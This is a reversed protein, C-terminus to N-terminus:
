LINEPRLKLNKPLHLFLLKLTYAKVASETKNEYTIYQSLEAITIKIKDLEEHNGTAAMFVEKKDMYESLSILKKEAEFFNDNKILEELEEAHVLLNSSIAELHTTYALSGCVLILGIIIATFFSKM